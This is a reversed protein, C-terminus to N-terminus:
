GGGSGAPLLVRFSARRRGPGRGLGPRRSPQRDPRGPALRVPAPRTPLRRGPRAPVAPLDVGSSPRSAPAPTTSVCLLAGTWRSSGCGSPRGRTPTAPPTPSCTRVVREVKPADALVQTPLLDLSVPHADLEDAAESVVGAVLPSAPRGARAPTEVIGRDLKDLDLLGTLIRDLRRANAALRGLPRRHRGPQDPRPGAAPDPLHGAGLGAPHAPRPSPEPPLREQARRPYASLEAAARERDLAVALRNTAVLEANLAACLKRVERRDTVDRACEGPARRAPAPARAPRSPWADYIRGDRTVEETAQEAGAAMASAM